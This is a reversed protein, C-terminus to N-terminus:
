KGVVEIYVLKRKAYFIARFSFVLREISQFLLSPFGTNIIPGFVVICPIEFFFFFYILSIPFNVRFALKDRVKPKSLLM